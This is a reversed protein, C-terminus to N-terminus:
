TKARQSPGLADKLSKPGLKMQASGVPSCARLPRTPVISFTRHPADATCALLASEDKTGYPVSVM